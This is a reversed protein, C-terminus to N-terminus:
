ALARAFHHATINLGANLYLRHAAFRQPGVGSDLHLEACDLRRAEADLWALLAGAHGRGRAQSRTVLDDVYLTRGAHLLHMVRYGAVAAAEAQGAEFVGALRYGEPRTLTLFAHLADPSATHRAQPRLERLASLAVAAEQPPISRLTRVTM